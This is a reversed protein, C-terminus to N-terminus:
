FNHQQEWSLAVPSLQPPSPGMKIPQRLIGSEASQFVHSVQRAGFFVRGKQVAALRHLVTNGGKSFPYMCCILDYLIM